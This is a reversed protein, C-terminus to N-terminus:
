FSVFTQKGILILGAALLQKHQTVPAGQLDARHCLLLLHEKCQESRVSAILRGSLAPSSLSVDPSTKGDGLCTQENPCAALLSVFSSCPHRKPM